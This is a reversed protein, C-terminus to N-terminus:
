LKKSLVDGMEKNLTIIKDRVKILENRRAELQNKKETLNLWIKEMKAIEKDVEATEQEMATIKQVFEETFKDCAALPTQGAVLIKVYGKNSKQAVGVSSVAVVAQGDESSSKDAGRSHEPCEAQVVQNRAAKLTELTKLNFQPNM